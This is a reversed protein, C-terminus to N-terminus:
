AAFAFARALWATFAPLIDGDVARFILAAAFRL